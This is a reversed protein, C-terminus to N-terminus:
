EAAALHESTAGLEASIDAYGQEAATIAAGGLAQGQELQAQLTEAERQAEDLDQRLVLTWL